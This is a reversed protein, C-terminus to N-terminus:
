PRFVAKNATPARADRDVHHLVEAATPPQAEPWLILLIAPPVLGFALLMVGSGVTVDAGSAMGAVVVLVVTGFWLQILRSRTLDKPMM